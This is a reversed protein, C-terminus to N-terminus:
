HKRYRTVNKIYSGHGTVSQLLVSCFLFFCSATMTEREEHRYGEENIVREGERERKRERLLNVPTHLVLQQFSVPLSTNGTNKITPAM